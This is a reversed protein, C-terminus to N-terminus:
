RHPALKNERHLQTQLSFRIKWVAVYDWYPKVHHENHRRADSTSESSEARGKLRSTSPDSWREGSPNCSSIHNARSIQRSRVRKTSTAMAGSFDRTHQNTARCSSGNITAVDQETLEGVFSCCPPSARSVTPEPSTTCVTASLPIGSSLSSGKLFLLGTSRVHGNSRNLAGGLQVVTWQVGGSSDVEGGGSNRECDPM